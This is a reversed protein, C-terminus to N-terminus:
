KEAEQHAPVDGALGDLIPCDPRDDGHCAEVLHALSSRLAELEKIKRGIQSIRERALAKVDRSARDKDEYLSLLQRCEDLSFGLSRARALFRLKRVERGAYDRYGNSKRGPTVLGIDDYYRVTKVPLGAQRAAKQINM